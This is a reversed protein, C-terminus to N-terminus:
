SRARWLSAGLEALALSFLALVSLALARRGAGGAARVAAGGIIAVGLALALLRPVWRSVAESRAASWGLFGVGGLLALLQPAVFILDASQFREMVPLMAERSVGPLSMEYAVLHYIADAALGTAGVGVLSAAAFGAGSGRLPTASLLGLLAPVFLASAILQFAVSGYVRDPAAGVQELIFAAATTGPLPMLFWALWFSIAAGVWCVGAVRALSSMRASAEM